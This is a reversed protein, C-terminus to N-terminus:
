IWSGEGSKQAGCLEGISKQQQVVKTARNGLKAQVSPDALLSPDASVSRGYGVSNGGQHHGNGSVCSIKM